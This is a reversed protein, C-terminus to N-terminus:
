YVLNPNYYSIMIPKNRRPDDEGKMIRKRNYKNINFYMEKPLKFKRHDPSIADVKVGEAYYTGEDEYQITYLLESIEIKDVGDIDGAKIRNNNVWIPHLPSCIIEKKNGLLGERIRIGIGTFQTSLVRCVKNTELNDKNTIIIDGRKIDKIQKCFGGYLTIMTTSRFCAAGYILQGTTKNVQGIYDSPTTTKGTVFLNKDQINIIARSTGQLALISTSTVGSTSNVIGSVDFTANDKIDLLSSEAIFGELTLALTGATITTSGTYTNINQLRLTGGNTKTFGFTNGSIVGSIILTNGSEVDFTSNNTLVINGAYTSSFQIAGYIMNYYLTKNIYASDSQSEGTIYLKKSGFTISGSGSIKQLSSYRNTVASIDFISTVASDNLISSSSIDGSGTLALTGDSITTSGTYTNKSSLQLTGGNTKAIGFNNGSIIGSLTLLCNSEVDFTSNATLIINGAYSSNLVVPGYVMNSYSTKNVYTSNNETEGTIYLKKTGFTISGSGSIKQLSSYKNTVGSIDFISTVASNDLISSSSIDGYRNLALTGATITTSGTYTNKSSLQLTGGNTKAIGFNNGSIVGSLILTYSSEVDFTSNATLTINGAYTSSFQIAGYVMNNYLYNNTYTSASQTEGTIYLKKSGFTISGSGSIKQLSSYRNTVASIDFISTVASDNLISSSSIDGSGTLALTGDTITTSGTYTNKSSLQLTGGNIKDIGYNNGSIVGSLILTYTSEVDFTSNATLIINGAYTSSFQIAGYIMNNYLTKNTYASASQTEGTIYLKKTGFTITGSGSIKQLSSYRNTVGSIDFISTVASDNLRSSSSIDGNGTLALTGDTITTSGTYTNVNTLILSGSSLTLNGSGSIIGNFTNNPQLITLTQLTIINGSGSLVNISLSLDLNLESNSNITLIDISSIRNNTLYTTFTSYSVNETITVNNGDSTISM